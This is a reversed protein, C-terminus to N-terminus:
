AGHETDFISPNREREGEGGGQGLIYIFLDKFVIYQPLGSFHVTVMKLLEDTNYLLDLIFLM